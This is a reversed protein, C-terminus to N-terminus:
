AVVMPIGQYRSQITQLMGGMQQGRSNTGYLDEKYSALRSSFVAAVKGGVGSEMGYSRSIGEISTSINTAGPPRLTDSLVTLCEIAAAKYIADAVILPVGKNSFGGIYEVRWLQPLYGLTQYILPLYAGGRGLMVQSLTGQTPVLHMKGGPYLRVWELPFDFIVDDDLQSELTSLGPTQGSIPYIAQVKTVSHVPPYWLELYAFQKYDDVIYDHFEVRKRPIVSVNAAEEVRELGKSLWWWYWDDEWPTGDRDVFLSELGRLYRKKLNEPSIQDIPVDRTLKGLM